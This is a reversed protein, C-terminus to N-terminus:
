PPPASLAGPGLVEVVKDLLQLPSFPKTIYVDAGADLGAVRDRGDSRATLMVIKIQATAPDDRLAVCVEIGSLGPMSWDLFILEPLERRAVDVADAGNDAEFIETQGSELTLRILSRVSSEDEAILIKAM